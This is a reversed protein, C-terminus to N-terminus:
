QTNPRTGMLNRQHNHFNPNNNRQNFQNHNNSINNNNNNTNNSYIRTSNHYSNNKYNNSHNQLQNRFSKSYNKTNSRRNLDYSSNNTKYSRNVSQKAFNKYPLRSNNLYSHKKIYRQNNSINNSQRTNGSLNIECNRQNKFKNYRRNNNSHEHRNNYPISADNYRQNNHYRKQKNQISNNHANTSLRKIKEAANEIKNKYKIKLHNDFQSLEENLNNNFRHVLNKKEEIQTKLEDNTIKIYDINFDLLRNKIEITLDRYKEM